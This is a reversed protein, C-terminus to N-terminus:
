EDSTGTPKRYAEQLRTSLVTCAHEAEDAMETYRQFMPGSGVNDALKRSLKVKEQLSRLAVWLAGEIENDQAALLADSTWAHGVRCRYNGVQVEMLTGNCDPCSYGAPPGLAESVFATSFRRGMAIRNELEMTDDPEMDTEEVPRDALRGLLAGIDGAAAQHDVQGGRIANLPM